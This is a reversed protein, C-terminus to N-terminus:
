RALKEVAGVVEGPSPLAAIEMSLARAHEAYASDSLLDACLRPIRDIIDGGPPLAIAAGYEAVRNSRAAHLRPVHPGHLILQPVGANMATMITVGGGHHVMLDCTPAVVDLPIWGARVDGLVARVEAAVRDPVAVVVEVDLSAVQSALDFLFEYAKLYPGPERVVRSGSTVCVRPKTGRTYMWPELRRQLNGPRWRMPQAPAADQPRLSPPCIDIFLDPEPLGDLGLMALEPRLEEAAGPDIGTSETAVMADWAHRVYPVGLEAALLPAAYVLTGGIVVDPRWVEALGRLTDMCAAALRGFWRGIFLPTQEVPDQPVELRNGARDTSIFHRIPLDTVSIAALGVGAVTPMMDEAAAMFVEHGANRMAWAFPTLAFVAAKSGAVVFLARM